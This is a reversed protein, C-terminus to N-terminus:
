WIIEFGPGQQRETDHNNGGKEGVKKLGFDKQSWYLGYSM